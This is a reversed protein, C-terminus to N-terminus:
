GTRSLSTQVASTMDASPIGGGPKTYAGATSVAAPVLTGDSNLSVELFTNLINGWDGDDSGPVPLRATM